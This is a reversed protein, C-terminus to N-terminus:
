ANGVTEETLWLLFGHPRVIIEDGRRSVTEDQERDFRPPERQYKEAFLGYDFDGLSVEAPQGTARQDETFKKRDWIRVKEISGLHLDISTPDIKKPYPEVTLLGCELAWKLDRDSLYM